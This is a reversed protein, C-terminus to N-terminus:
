ECVVPQDNELKAEFTSVTDFRKSVEGSAQRASFQWEVLEILDCEGTGQSTAFALLLTQRVADSTETSYSDLVKKRSHPFFTFQWLYETFVRVTEPSLPRANITGAYGSLLSRDVGDRNTNSCKFIRAYGPSTVDGINGVDNHYALERIFEFYRRNDVSGVYYGQVSRSANDADEWALAVDYDDTCVEYSMSPDLVHHVTYSRTTDAAREDIFFSDPVSYANDYVRALVEAVPPMSPASQSANHPSETSVSSGAGGCATTVVMLPILLYTSVRM